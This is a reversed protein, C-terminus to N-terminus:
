QVGVFDTSAAQGDERYVEFAQQPYGICLDKLLGDLV